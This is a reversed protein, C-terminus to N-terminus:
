SKMSVHSERGFVAVLLVVLVGLLAEQLSASYGQGVLLTTLESLVLAGAVTRGYGGRGGLLSTGGIVVATLTQFLYPDGVTADATGSFGAFLVGVVAACIASIVFVVVFAKTTRVHALRAAV